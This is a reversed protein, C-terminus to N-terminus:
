RLSKSTPTVSRFVRLKDIHLTMRDFYHQMHDITKGDLKDVPPWGHLEVLADNIQVAIEEFLDRGVDELLDAQDRCVQYVRVLDLYHDFINELKRDLSSDRYYNTAYSM